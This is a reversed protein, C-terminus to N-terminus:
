DHSQFKLKYIFESSTKHCISSNSTLNDTNDNELMCYQILVHIGDNFNAFIMLDFHRLMNPGSITFLLLAHSM